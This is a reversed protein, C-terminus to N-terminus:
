VRSGRSKAGFRTGSTDEEDEGEDEDEDEDEDEEDEEEGDTAEVDDEDELLNDLEAESVIGRADLRTPAKINRRPRDERFGSLFAM